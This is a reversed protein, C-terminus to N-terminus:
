APQRQVARAARVVGAVRIEGAAVIARAQRGTYDMMLRFNQGPHLRRGRDAHLFTIWPNISTTIGMEALMPKVRGMLRVWEATQEVPLHGQNLDECSCHFAVDDIRATKCFRLLNAVRQGEHNGPQICCRLIYRFGTNMTGADQPKQRPLLM